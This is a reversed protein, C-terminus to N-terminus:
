WTFENLMWNLPLFLLNLTYFSFFGVININSDACRSNCEDIVYIFYNCSFLFNFHCVFFLFYFIIKKKKGYFGIQLYRLFSEIQEITRLQQFCNLKVCIKSCQLYSKVTGRFRNMFHFHLLCVSDYYCFASSSFFLFTSLSSYLFFFFCCLRFM